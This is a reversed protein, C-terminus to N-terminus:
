VLYTKPISIGNFNSAYASTYAGGPYILIKDGILLDPLPIERGIIDFSDCSPGALTWNKITQGGSNETPTFSYSIGGVTEMLGNFVGVDLYLWDKGQRYSKGIVSTILIGTDGVLGRGPEVILSVDNPFLTETFKLIFDMIQPVSPVGLDHAAPFGGGLNLTKLVIGQLRIQNWIQVSTELANQWSSLGRCQSGVHFTLGSPNLGLQKATLLLSLADRPEAGFKEDLPWGSESNDTIFRIIVECNSALGALKQLENQSDAVFRRIGNEVAYHIFENSKVPNSTIIKEVPIGESLLVKLEEQSSVEFGVGLRNIEQLLEPVPNAKVSYFTTIRPAYSLFTDCQKRLLEKNLLVSPTTISDPATRLCAPININPIM